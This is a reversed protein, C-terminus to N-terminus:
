VLNKNYVKLSKAKANTRSKVKIPIVLMEEEILYDIETTNKHYYFLKSYYKALVNAVYQENILEKVFTTKGM